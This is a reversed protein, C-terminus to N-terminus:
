SRSQTLPSGYLFRLPHGHHQVSKAYNDDLQENFAFRILVRLQGDQQPVAFVHDDWPHKPLCDVIPQDAQLLGRRQAQLLANLLRDTNTVVPRM